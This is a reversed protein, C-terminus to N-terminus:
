KKSRKAEVVANSFSSWKELPEKNLLFLAEELDLGNKKLLELASFADEIIQDTPGKNFYLSKNLQRRFLRILDERSQEEPSLRFQSSQTSLEPFEHKSWFYDDLEKFFNDKIREPSYSDQKLRKKTSNLSKGTLLFALIEDKIFEYNNNGMKKIIEDVIEDIVTAQQDIKLKELSELINKLMDKGGKKAEESELIELSDIPSGKAERLLSNISHQEEHKITSQDPFLGSIRQALILSGFEPISAKTTSGPLPRVGLLSNLYIREQGTLESLPKDPFVFPAFDELNSCQICLSVPGRVIKIKGKPPRGILTEYLEAADPHKKQFADIKERRNLFSNLLRKNEETQESTFNYKKEYEAITTELNQVPIAPNKKILRILSAEMKAQGVREKINKEKEFNEPAPPNENKPETEPKMAPDEPKKEPILNPNEFRNM